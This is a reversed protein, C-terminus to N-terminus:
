GHVGERDAQASDFAIQGDYDFIISRVVLGQGAFGSAASVIRGGVDAIVDPAQNKLIEFAQRATNASRVTHALRTDGTRKQTWAALRDLVLAARAAHTHPMGQAMKLAKGFFVTIILSSFGRASATQMAFQFYDGIQIFREDPFDAFVGQAFRESRRGTTLVVGQSGTAAAVALASQITATYAAHSMPRVIGTTGLISIGGIIGLRANLTKRALVEGRPVFITVGVDFERRREALVADVAAEIMRRPGPNIAPSGPPVELGPKTVIGVGQGGDIQLGGPGQPHDPRLTLEVEAGVEARHTVDPDDGADKIVTCVAKNGDLRAIRKLPVTVGGETLFAIYVTQPPKNELLLRLAGKVAAAAATGTTFGSRLKKPTQSTM